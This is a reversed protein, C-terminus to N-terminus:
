DQKCAHRDSTARSAEKGSQKLSHGTAASLEQVDAAPGDRAGAGVGLGAGAGVVAVVVVVVRRAVVAVVVVVVVRAVVM